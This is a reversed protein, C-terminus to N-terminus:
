TGVCIYGVVDTVTAPGTITISSSSTNVIKILNGTASSGQTATCVFSSTSTFAPSIGTVVATSPAGSSLAVSGYVIKANVQSTASCSTTTGCFQVKPASTTGCSIVGTASTFNLHNGSTTDPCNPFAAISPFVPMVYNTNDSFLTGYWNQPVIQTAAGNITSTTPTITVLGAGTNFLASFWSNAFGTGGAAPVTYAAASGNSQTVLKGRDATVWPYSTGTQANITIGTPTNTLKSGDYYIYDGATLSALTGTLVTAGNGATNALTASVIGGSPNTWAIGSAGTTDVHNLLSQSTNNSSNTLLTISSGTTTCTGGATSVVGTLAPLQSCALSGSLNTFAPQARTFVGTTGDLGTLWNNASATIAVPIISNANPVSIVRNSTLTGTGFSVEQNAANGIHANSFPVTASGLACGAASTCTPTTAFLAGGLTGGGAANLHTHTANLFSAITPTVITPSTEFVAPGSGTEDSLVGALQASTTAAFQALTNTTLAATAPLMAATLSCYSPAATSGTCNGFVKNAAANTLTFAVSAAVTPATVASTFLPSLDAVAVSTVTGTGGGGGGSGCHDALEVLQWGTGLTEVCKGGVSAGVGYPINGSADPFFYSRDATNAHTFTGRFTNIDAILTGTAGQFPGHVTCVENVACTPSHPVMAVTEKWAEQDSEANPVILQVTPHSIDFDQSGNTQVYIDLGSSVKAKMLVRCWFWGNADGDPQLATALSLQVCFSDGNIIYWDGPNDGSGYIIAATAAITSHPRVAVGAEIITGAPIGGAGHHYLSKQGSGTVTIAQTGAYEDTVGVASVIGTVSVNGIYTNNTVQNVNKVTSPMGNRRSDDVLPLFTPTFPVNYPGFAPDINTYSLPSVGQTITAQTGIQQAGYPSFWGWMEGGNITAESTNIVDSGASDAQFAWCRATGDAAGVRGTQFPGYNFGTLKFVYGFSFAWYKDTVSGTPTHGVNGAQLSDYNAGVSRVRVGAPYTMLADYTDAGSLYYGGCTEASTNTKRMDVNVTNHFEAAPRDSGDNAGSQGVQMWVNGFWQLDTFNAIYFQGSNGINEFTVNDLTGNYSQNFSGGDIWLPATGSNKVFKSHGIYWHLLNSATHICLPASLCGSTGANGEFQFGDIHFNTIYGTTQVFELAPFGDASLTPVTGANLFTTQRLGVHGQFTTNITGDLFKWGRNVFQIDAYIDMRGEEFTWAGTFDHLSGDIICGSQNSGRIALAGRRMGATNYLAFTSWFAATDATADHSCLVTYEPLGTQFSQTGTFVNPASLSAGTGILSNIKIQGPTSTDVTTNSGDVLRRSSSLGALENNVTVFTAATSAGGGSSNIAIVAIDTLTRTPVGTGYIQEEYLVTDAAFYSYVGSSNPRVIGQPLIETTLGADSFVHALTTCPTGSTPQTCVRVYGGPTPRLYTGIQSQAIGDRRGGTAQAAPALASLLVAVSAASFLASSVKSNRSRSWLGAVRKTLNLM